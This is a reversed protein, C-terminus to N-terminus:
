RALLQKAKQVGTVADTAYEDAGVRQCWSATMPAGGVMVKFRDRVGREVLLEVVRQQRTMTTTMLASIGIIDAGHELARDVFAEPKVDVGLDFVKFGSAELMAAVINKGINHVDGQITGIVFTGRAEVVAGESTLKEQIAAVATSMAKAATVLNPLFFEGCEFRRGAEGLGKVLGENLIVLAPRGEDLAQKVLEEISRFEGNLVADHLRVLTDGM